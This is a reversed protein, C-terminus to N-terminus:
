VAKRDRIDRDIGRYGAFQGQADFFPIGSSEMVIAEGAQNRRRIEIRSFSQHQSMCRQIMLRSTQSMSDLSILTTFAKGVLQAPSYGLLPEIQPSIYTYLGDANIEWICDEITELLDQFQSEPATAAPVSLEAPSGWTAGLSTALLNLAARYEVTLPPLQATVFGIGLFGQLQNAVFIACLQYTLGGDVLTLVTSPSQRLLADADPHLLRALSAADSNTSWYPWDSADPLCSGGLLVQIEVSDIAAQVTLLGKQVAADRDSLTLLDHNAQAVSGLFREVLTM